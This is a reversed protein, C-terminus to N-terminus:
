TGYTAEITVPGTHGGPTYVAWANGDADTTDSLPAVSGAGDTIAWVVFANPEGALRLLATGDPTPTMTNSTIM